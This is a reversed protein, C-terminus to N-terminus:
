PPWHPGMPHSLVDRTVQASTHGQQVPSAPTFRAAKTRMSDGWPAKPGSM